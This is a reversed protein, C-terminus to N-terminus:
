PDVSIIQLLFDYLEHKDNRCTEKYKGMIYIYKYQYIYINIVISPMAKQDNRM